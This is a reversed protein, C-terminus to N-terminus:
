HRFHRRGTLVMALGHEDAAAIVEADRVSGGPQVIATVGAEAAVDPGDRFPFFADSALVAGPARGGAKDIALRVADVRSMQGAGVGVVRRDRAVVIANSRVHKAVTWAFRLDQVTTEDPAASSVTRWENFPERGRDADQVLLAGQVSRVSFSAGDRDPPDPQAVRLVRLNTKRRLAVLAGDDYDPAVVVETFVTLVREAADRDLRRNVAVIGGFASVPDGQLAREHATALDDALACGAPNTHKIIAVCPADFETALAWAADADLLNNYSLEKGHLQEASALGWREGSVDVYCAARQHPNEGYRLTSLRDYVATLVLPFTEDRHFWAAVAADYAAVHAFAKAALERRRSAPLGGDARLQALLAPYDDPDVVVGVGAHNKAAARVMTPGGVDIMDIVEADSRGAAVTDRFPYLNAVVLDIPEVGLEALEALHEPRSRDALIGAHLRPHLTKVRGDLCEPFGTVDAVETVPVGAQAITRATSGTSVLVVGQAHLGAALDAVGRKDFVSVLARRVAVVTM